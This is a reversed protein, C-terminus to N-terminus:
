NVYYSHTMDCFTLGYEITPRTLKGHTQADATARYIYIISPQEHLSLPAKYFMVIDYRHQPFTPQIM